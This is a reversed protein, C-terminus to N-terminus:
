CCGLWGVHDVDRGEMWVDRGEMCGYMWVDM